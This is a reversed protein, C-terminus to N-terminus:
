VEHLDFRRDLYHKGTSFVEGRENEEMIPKNVGKSRIHHAMEETLEVETGHQLNYSQMQGEQDPFDRNPATGAFFNLPVGPQQRNEFYYKRKSSSRSTRINPAEFKGDTGRSKDKAM